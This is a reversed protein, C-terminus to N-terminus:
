TRPLIDSAGARADRPRRAGSGSDALKEECGPEVPSIARRKQAEARRREAIARSAGPAAFLPGVGEDALGALKVLLCFKNCSKKSQPLIRATM